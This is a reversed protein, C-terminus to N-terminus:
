NRPSSSLFWDTQTARTKPIPLKISDSDRNPEQRRNMDDTAKPIRNIIIPKKIISYPNPLKLRSTIAMPMTTKM